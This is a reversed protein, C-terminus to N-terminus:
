PTAPTPNDPPRDPSQPVSPPLCDLLERGVTVLVPLRGTPFIRRPRSAMAFEGALEVRWGRHGKLWRDIEGAESPALGPMESRRGLRRSRGAWGTPFRAGPLHLCVFTEVMLPESVEPDQGLVDTPGDISPRSEVLVRETRDGIYLTGGPIPGALLNTPEEMGPFPFAPAHASYLSRLGLTRGARVWEEGRRRIRADRVLLGIVAAGGACSGLAAGTGPRLANGLAAGGLVLLAFRLFMRASQFSHVHRTM